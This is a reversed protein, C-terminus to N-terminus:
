YVKRCTMLRGGTGSFIVVANLMNRLCVCFSATKRTRTSSCRASTVSIVSGGIKWKGRQSWNKQQNCSNENIGAAILGSLLWAQPVRHNMWNQSSCYLTINIMIYKWHSNWLVCCTKKEKTSQITTQSNIKSCVLSCVSILLVSLKVQPTELSRTIM